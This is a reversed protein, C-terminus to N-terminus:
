ATKEVARLPPQRYLGKRAGREVVKRLVKKRRALISRMSILLKRTGDRYVVYEGAAIRRHGETKGIGEERCFRPFPLLRDLTLTEPNDLEDLEEFETKDEMPSV